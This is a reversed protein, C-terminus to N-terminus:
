READQIERLGHCDFLVDAIWIVNQLFVVGLEVLLVIMYTLGSHSERAVSSM